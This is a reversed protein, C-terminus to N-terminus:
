IGDHEMNMLHGLEHAVTNAVSALSRGGDYSVGISLEGNCMGRPYSVGVTDKEM